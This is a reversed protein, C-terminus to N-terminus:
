QQKKKGYRSRYVRPSVKYRKEFKHIFHSLSSYGIESSIESIPMNTNVLLSLAHRMKLDSFYDAVTIGMHKKFARSLHGASYNSLRVLNEFSGCVVETRNMEALFNLLWQPYPQQVLNCAEIYHGVLEAVIARHVACEEESLNEPDALQLKRLRADLELMGDESLTLIAPKQPDCFREYVHAGLADCITQFVNEAVYIDRHEYKMGSRIHYRHYHMPGLFIVSCKKISHPTGNVIDQAEGCFLYTIERFTHGHTENVEFTVSYTLPHLRDTPQRISIAM